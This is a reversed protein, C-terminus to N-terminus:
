RSAETARAPAAELLDLLAGGIEARDAVLGALTGDMLNGRAAIKLGARIAEDAVFRPTVDLSSALEAALADREAQPWDPAHTIQWGGPPMLERAAAVVAAVWARRAEAARWRADLAGPLRQWAAALLASARRQLAARRHTQLKARAAAVREDRRAREEAFAERMRLRAERHADALLAQARARAEGLITECKKARDAEVLALLADAQREVSM